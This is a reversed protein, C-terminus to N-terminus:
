GDVAVPRLDAFLSSAATTQEADMTGAGSALALARVRELSNCLHRRMSQRAARGDRKEVADVIKEHEGHIRAYYADELEPAM